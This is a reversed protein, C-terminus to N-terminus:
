AGDGQWIMEGARNAHAWGDHPVQLDCGFHEGRVNVAAPCDGSEAGEVGVPRATVPPLVAVVRVSPEVVAIDTGGAFWRRLEALSLAPPAEGDLTVLAREGPKLRVPAGARELMEDLLELTSDVADRARDSEFVGAGSLNDWCASAYGALQGVVSALVPEGRAEAEAAILRADFAPGAPGTEQETTTM